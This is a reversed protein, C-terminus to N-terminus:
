IIAYINQMHKEAKFYYYFCAALTILIGGPILMLTIIITATKTSSANELVGYFSVYKKSISLVISLSIAALGYIIILISSPNLLLTILTPGAISFLFFGVNRLIKHFVFQHQYQVMEGPELLTFIDISLASLFIIGLIWLSIHFGGLCLLIWILLISWLKQEFYFRVEFLSLPIKQLSIKSGDKKSHTLYFSLIAVIGSIGIIFLIISWQQFIGQFLIIPLSIFINEIFKFQFLKFDTQFISKLFYTDKRKLEISLLLVLAMLVAGSAPMLLISQLASLIIGTLIFIAIAIIGFGIEHLYRYAQKARLSLLSIIQKM